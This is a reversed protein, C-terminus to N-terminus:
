DEQKKWSRSFGEDKYINPLGCQMKFRLLEEATMNLAKCIDMDSMKMKVMRNVMDSTPDIQHKGRAENFAVTASMRAEMTMDLIYVPIESLKFHNKLVSYRHFGDVVIYKDIDKQYIVTIGYVLGFNEISYILYKMESTAVKNPNYDNAQIKDTSVMVPTMCPLTIKKTM